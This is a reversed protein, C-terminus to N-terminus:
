LSARRTLAALERLESWDFAYAGRLSVAQIRGLKFRIRKRLSGMRLSTSEEQDM